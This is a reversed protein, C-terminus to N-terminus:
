SAGGDEEGPGEISTVELLQWPDGLSELARVRAQEESEAGIEITRTRPTGSVGARVLFRMSPAPVGAEEARVSASEEARVSASEDPSPAALGPVLGQVFDQFVEKAGEIELGIGGDAVANASRHVKRKWVVRAPIGDALAGTQGSFNLVIRTGVRPTARSSVFLGGKSVNLVMGVHHGDGDDFEVPVRKRYRLQHQIQM